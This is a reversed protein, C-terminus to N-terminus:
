PWSADGSAAPTLPHVHLQLGHRATIHVAQGTQLDPPGLAQWIEGHVHVTGQGQHWREVRGTEGVPTLPGSVPPRRQARVVAALVWVLVILSLATALVIVPWDLHFGEVETDFLLVSGLAFAALGGLGLVGFSPVFAEAAMLALGLLLLGAGAYNIPLMNLALLATLLSIGGLTGPVIAGPNMLEFLIGYFGILLLIYALNPHTIAALLRARWGPELVTVTLGATALTHPTNGLQVTRGDAQQLLSDLDPALIEVVHAALAEQASLSAADRVAREAWDANRGRLEALSRIYAVADNIAKHQGADPAAAPAPSATDSPRPAPSTPQAPGGLAVPTAAGLNTGPAMAALHSAYVLYTGASAAQAGGPAVYSIVPVPSALIARNIDRLSTVLGGPTDIRLIVVAAHQAHAQALGAELYETTAPGIPGRVELLVAPPASAM